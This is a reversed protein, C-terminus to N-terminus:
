ASNARKSFTLELATSLQSCPIRWGRSAVSLSSCIARLFGLASSPQATRPGESHTPSVGKSNARHFSQASGLGAPASNFKAWPTLGPYPPFFYRTGEPVACNQESPGCWGVDVGGHGRKRMTGGSESCNRRRGTAHLPGGARGQDHLRDVSRLDPNGARKHACSRTWIRGVDRIGPARLRRLLLRIWFDDGAGRSYHAARWIDCHVARRPFACLAAQRHPFLHHGHDLGARLELDCGHEGVDRPGCYSGATAVAPQVPAPPQAQGCNPCFQANAPVEVGCKTCHPM